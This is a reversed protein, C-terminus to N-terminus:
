TAMACVRISRMRALPRVMGRGLSLSRARARRAACAAGAESAPLGARGKCCSAPTFRLGSATAAMHADGTTPLGPRACYWVINSPVAPTDGNM